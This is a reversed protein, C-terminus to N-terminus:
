SHPPSKAAMQELYYLASFDRLTRAPVDTLVDRAQQLDMVGYYAVICRVYPPADRLAARTGSAYRGLVGLHLPPERRRRPRRRQLACLRDPQSCRERGGSSQHPPRHRSPQLQGRDHRFRRNATGLHYLRRPRQLPPYHTAALEGHVANPLFSEGPRYHTPYYIDLKLEQYDLTRYVLDERVGVKDMGPISYVVREAYLRELDLM